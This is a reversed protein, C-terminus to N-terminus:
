KPLLNSRTGAARGRHVALERLLEFDLERTKPGPNAKKYKPVFRQWLEEGMGLTLVVATMVLINPELGLWSRVRGWDVRKPSGATGREARRTM